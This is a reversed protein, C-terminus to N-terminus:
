TFLRMPLQITSQGIRIMAAIPTAPYVPRPRFPAIGVPILQPSSSELSELPGGELTAPSFDPSVSESGARMSPSRTCVGPEEHDALSSQRDLSVGRVSQPRAARCNRDRERRRQPSARRQRRHQTRIRSHRRGGQRMARLKSRLGDVTRPKPYNTSRKRRGNSTPTNRCGSKSRIREGRRGPFTSKRRVCRTHSFHSSRGNLRSSRTSIEVHHFANKHDTKAAHGIQPRDM